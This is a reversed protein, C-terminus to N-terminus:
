DIRRFIEGNYYPHNKRITERIPNDDGSSIKSFTNEFIKFSKFEKIISSFSPLLKVGFFSIYYKNGYIM